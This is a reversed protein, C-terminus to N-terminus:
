KSMEKKTRKFNIVARKLQIVEVATPLGQAILLRSLYSAGLVKRAFASALNSAEKAKEPNRVRYLAAQEKAKEPNALKWAKASAHLHEKNAARWEKQHLKANERYAKVKEPNKERWEKIEATRKEFHKQLSKAQNAAIKEPNKKKWELHYQKIKAANAERYIAATEAVKKPNRARWRKTAETRRRKREEILEPFALEELQAHILGVLTAPKTM